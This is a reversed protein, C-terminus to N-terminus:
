TREFGDAVEETVIVGLFGSSFPTFPLQYIRNVKQEHPEVVRNSGDNGSSLLHAPTGALSAWVRAEIVTTSALRLANQVKRGVLLVIM